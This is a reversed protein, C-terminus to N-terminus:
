NKEGKSARLSNVIVSVDILEQIIAGILPVILGFAAILMGVISLGIGWGISQLAIKITRKAINISQLVSTFDGGLFVLDAAESSATQEENSFVMGIDALALAPADNIGDGVMATIKGSKKFEEIGKQKDEPTCESKISIDIGLKKAINDAAKKKDGTFMWTEIGFKKMEHLTSITDQKIQDDFYLIAIKKEKDAELIFFDIAMGKDEKSTVLHYINGDIEGKIGKGIIEQVQLAHHFEIKDRKGAEVIAKALPHLSNREIGAALSLIKKQSYNKDFIEMHTLEPKGITITGTKDFIITNIRSLIELSSIKKVIIRKKACASMGGILAIPTALILPCPTAIVLVALVREIDKSLVYTILCITFTIITFFTSYKDALRILPAKENQARQVMEIIKKYTSDLEEKEVKIVVSEGINITGSRMIDGKSKEFFYPEGTLSSEDTLAAESILNGDLPIVEGKRVLINQGKKVENINTKTSHGNPEMVSVQNPIRDVLATLSKKAQLNAYKELNQGTSLMLAIVAGVLYQGSYLSVLIAGVAIYDLAFQKKILSHFIEIFLEYSGLVIMALILPLSIVKYGLWDLLLYLLIGVLILIPKIFNSVINKAKSFKEM